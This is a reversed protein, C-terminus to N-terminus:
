SVSVIELRQRTVLSGRGSGRYCGSTPPVDTYDRGVAVTLYRRDTLRDHCPDVAVAMAGPGGTGPDPAPVIVEVWAHSQSEGVLHGSVYRAAIGAARCLALMLHAHDQCVGVGGALADAASTTVSTTGPRYALRQHVWSSCRLAAELPDPGALTRAAATITADPATLPTPALLRRGTLASAPLRPPPGGAIRVADASTDFSLSAGVEDLRVRAARGGDPLRVWSLSAAPASVVLDHARTVQDGHRAPPVTVLQHDLGAVPGDYSYTFRQTLRYGVTRGALAGPTDALATLASLGGLASPEPSGASALGDAGPPSAGPRSVRHRSSVGVSVGPLETTRVARVESRRWGWREM